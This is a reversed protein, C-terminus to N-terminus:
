ILKLRPYGPLKLCHATYSPYPGALVKGQLCARTSDITYAPSPICGSPTACLVPQAGTGATM